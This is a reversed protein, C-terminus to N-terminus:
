RVLDMFWGCLVSDVKDFLLVDRPTQGSVHFSVIKEKSKQSVVGTGGTQGAREAGPHEVPLQGGSAGSSHLFAGSAPTSGAYLAPRYDPIGAMDAPYFPVRM